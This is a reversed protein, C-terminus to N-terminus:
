RRGIPTSAPLLSYRRVEPPSPEALLLANGGAWLLGPQVVDGRPLSLKGLWHLDRGYYLDLRQGIGSLVAVNRTETLYALGDPCAPLATEASLAGDSLRYGYLRQAVRDALFVM